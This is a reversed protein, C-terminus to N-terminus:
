QIGLDVEVIVGDGDDFWFGIEEDGVEMVKARDWVEQVEDTNKTQVRKVTWLKVRDIDTNLKKAIKRRMM